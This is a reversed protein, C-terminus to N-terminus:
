KGFCLNGTYVVCFASFDVLNVDILLINSSESTTGVLSSQALSM